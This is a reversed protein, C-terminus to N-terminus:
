VIARHPVLGLVKRRCLLSSCHCCCRCVSRTLFSTDSLLNDFKGEVPLVSPACPPDPKPQVKFIVIEPAVRYAVKSLRICSHRNWSTRPAWRQKRTLISPENVPKGGFRSLWPWRRLSPSISGSCDPRIKSLHRRSTAVRVDHDTDDRDLPFVATSRRFDSPIERVSETPFEPVLQQSLFNSAERM